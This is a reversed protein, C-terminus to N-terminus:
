MHWRSKANAYDADAGKLDGMKKKLAGRASWYYVRGPDLDIAKTYSDLASDLQGGREQVVGIQYFGEVTPQLSVSRRLDALALSDRGLAVQAEGRLYLARASEPKAQLYRDYEGVAENYKGQLSYIAGREFLYQPNAPDLELLRGYAMLAKDLQQQNKYTTARLAWAPVSKPQLSIVRDLALGAESYKGARASQEAGRLETAAQQPKEAQKVGLYVAGSVFIVVGIAIALIRYRRKDVQRATVPALNPSDHLYEQPTEVLDGVVSPGTAVAEKENEQREKSRRQLASGASPPQPIDPNEM